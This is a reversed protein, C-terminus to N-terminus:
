INSGQENAGTGLYADVRGGLVQEQYEHRGNTRVELTAERGIRINDNTFVVTRGGQSGADILYASVISGRQTSVLHGM